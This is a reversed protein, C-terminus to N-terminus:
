KEDVTAEHINVTKEKVSIGSLKRSKKKKRSKQSRASSNSSSSSSSYEDGLVLKAYNKVRASSFSVRKVYLSGKKTRYQSQGPSGKGKETKNSIATMRAKEKKPTSEGKMSSQDIM